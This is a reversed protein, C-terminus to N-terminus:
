QTLKASTFTTITTTTNVSPTLPSTQTGAPMASQLVATPDVIAMPQVSINMNNGSSRPDEPSLAESVTIGGLAGHAVYYRAATLLVAALSVLAMFGRTLGKRLPSPQRAARHRRHAGGSSAM